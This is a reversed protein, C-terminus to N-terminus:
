YPVISTTDPLSAIIISLIECIQLIWMKYFNEVLWSWKGSQVKKESIFVNNVCVRLNFISISKGHVMPYNKLTKNTSFSTTDWLLFTGCSGLVHFHVESIHIMGWNCSSCTWTKHILVVNESDKSINWMNSKKFSSSLTLIITLKNNLHLAHM